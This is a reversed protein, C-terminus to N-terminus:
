NYKQLIDYAIQKNQDGTNNEVNEYANMFINHNILYGNHKEFDDKKLAMVFTRKELDLGTFEFYKTSAIHTGNPQQSITGSNIVSITEGVSFKDCPTYIKDVKFNYRTFSNVPHYGMCGGEIIEQKEYEVVSTGCEPFFEGRVIVYEDFPLFSELEDLSKTYGFNMNSKCLFSKLIFYENNTDKWAKKCIDITIPFEITFKDQKAIYKKEGNEEVVEVYGLAIPLYPDSEKVNNDIKQFDDGQLNEKEDQKKSNPQETNDQSSNDGSEINVAEDSKLQNENNPHVKNDQKDSDSVNTVEDDIKNEIEIDQTGDFSDSAAVEDFDEPRRKCASLSILMAAIILLSIYRKM